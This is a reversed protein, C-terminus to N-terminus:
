DHDTYPGLMVTKTNKERLENQVQAGRRPGEGSLMDHAMAKSLESFVADRATVANEYEVVKADLHTMIVYFSENCRGDLVTGKEDRRWVKFMKAIRREDKEPDKNIVPKRFKM